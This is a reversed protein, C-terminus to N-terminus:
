ATRHAVVVSFLGQDDGGTAEDPMGATNINRVHSLFEYRSVDATAQGQVPQGTDTYKRFYSQFIQRQLFIFDFNQAATTTDIPDGPTSAVPTSIKGNTQMTWLDNISM